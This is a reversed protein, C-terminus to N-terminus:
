LIINIMHLNHFSVQCGGQFVVKGFVDTLIISKNEDMELVEVWTFESAPNPYVKLESQEGSETQEDLGLFQSKNGNTSANMRDFYDDECDRFYATIVEANSGQSCIEGPYKNDICAVMHGWNVNDFSFPVAEYGPNFTISKGATYSSPFNANLNFPIVSVSNITRAFDIVPENNNIEEDLNSNLAPLLASSPFAGEFNREVLQQETFNTAIFATNNM